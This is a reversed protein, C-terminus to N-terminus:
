MKWESEFETTPGLSHVATSAEVENLKARAEERVVHLQEATAMGNTEIIQYLAAVEVKLETIQQVAERFSRTIRMIEALCELLQQNDM